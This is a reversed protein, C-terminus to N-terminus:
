EDGETDTDEPLELGKTIREVLLDLINARDFQEGTADDIGQQPAAWEKAFRAKHHKFRLERDKVDGNADLFRQQEAIFCEGEAKELEIVLKAQRTLEAREGEEIEERHRQGTELWQKFTNPSIGLAKAAPQRFSGAKVYAVLKDIVEDTLSCTPLNGEIKDGSQLRM